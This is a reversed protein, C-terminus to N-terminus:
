EPSLGNLASPPLALHGTSILHANLAALFANFADTLRRSADRTGEKYKAYAENTAIAKEGRFSKSSKEDGMAHGEELLAFKYPSFHKIHAQRFDLAANVLGYAAAALMSDHPFYIILRHYKVLLSASLRNIRQEYELIRDRIENLYLHGFSTALTDFILTVVEDFFALLVEEQRTDLTGQRRVAIDLTAKLEALNAAHASRVQEVTETIRKTDEKTALGKAKASIYQRLYLGLAGFGAYILLAPLYGMLEM